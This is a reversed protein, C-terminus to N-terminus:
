QCSLHAVAPPPSQPAWASGALTALRERAGMAQALVPLSHGATVPKQRVFQVACPARFLGGPVNVPNSGDM